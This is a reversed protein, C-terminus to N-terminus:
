VVLVWGLEWVHTYGMEKVYATPKHAAEVYTFGDKEPPKRACSWFTCVEYISMPGTVPDPSAESKWGSATTM